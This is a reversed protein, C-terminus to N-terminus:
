NKKKGFQEYCERKWCADISMQYEEETMQKGIRDAPEWILLRLQCGCTQCSLLSKEGKVRLDLDNKFSLFKKVAKAVAENLESDPQNMPCTLCIDARKQAEDHDVVVGGSGVWTTLNAVGDAMTAVKSLLNM